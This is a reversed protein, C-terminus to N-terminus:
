FVKQRLEFVGQPHDKLAKADQEFVTPNIAAEPENCQVAVEELTELTVHTQSQQKPSM